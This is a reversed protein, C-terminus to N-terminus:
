SGELIGGLDALAGLIWALNRLFGNFGRWSGGLHWWFGGLGGMIWALDKWVAGLIVGLDAWSGQPIAGFHGLIGGLGGM